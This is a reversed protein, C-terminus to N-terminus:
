VRRSGTALSALVRAALVDGFTGSRRANLVGDSCRQVALALGDLSWRRLTAEVASRRRFHLGPWGQQIAADLSAGAQMSARVRHLQLAHRLAAGVVQAPSTGSAHLRGLAVDLAAANGVFAADVAEDLALASVDATLAEVDDLAIRSTGHAYLILKDIESRSAARDAGLAAVLATRADREIQIGADAFSTDVLRAIAAENDAFCPLAAAQASRECLARLQAGKRLDGAEIITVAEPPPGKLLSDVAGHFARSGARVRIIRRGGFMSVSHAEDLLRGPDSALDDGEIRVLGFSEDLDPALTRVLDRAREGVLGLDPGYLLVCVIGAPPRALFQDVGGAKVAVM